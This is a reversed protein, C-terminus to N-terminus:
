RDRQADRLDLTTQKVKELEAQHAVYGLTLAGIAVGAAIVVNQGIIATPHISASPHINTTPHIQMSTDTM